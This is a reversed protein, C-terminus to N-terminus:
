TPRVTISGRMGAGYHGTVHCGYELAGARNFTYVLQVTEGPPVVVANPEASMHGSAMEIEHAQQQAADGIVFEHAIVGPNTIEFAVTEGANFTLADPVFRLGDTTEITISRDVPRGPDSAPAPDMNMGPMPTPGMNMGPMPANDTGTDQASLWTTSVAALVLAGILAGGVMRVHKLRPSM